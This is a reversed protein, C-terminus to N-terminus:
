LLRGSESRPIHGVKPRKLFNFHWFVDVYHRNNLLTGYGLTSTILLPTVWNLFNYHIIAACIARFLLLRWIRTVEARIEAKEVNTYGYENNGRYSTYSENVRWIVRRFLRYALLHGLFFISRGLILIQREQLWAPSLYGISVWVMCVSITKSGHIGLAFIDNKLYEELAVEGAPPPLPLTAPAARPADQQTQQPPPLAQTQTQQQLWSLPSVSRGNLERLVDEILGLARDKEYNTVEFTSVLRRLEELKETAM